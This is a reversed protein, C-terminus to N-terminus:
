SNAISEELCSFASEPEAYILGFHGIIVFGLAEYIKRAFTNTTETCLVLEALRLKDRCDEILGALLTKGYGCRRYPYDIFVGRIQGAEDTLGELTAIGYLTKDNGIGWWSKRAVKSFFTRRRDDVTGHVPMLQEHLYARNLRDWESFDNVTLYRVARRDCEFSYGNLNLSYHLEKSYIATELVPFRKQYAQWFQEALPWDAECGTIVQREILLAELLEESYNGEYDTQLLVEGCQNLCFIARVQEKELLCLVDGSHMQGEVRTPGHEFLLSTLLVSQARYKRLLIMAAPEFERSWREIRLNAM